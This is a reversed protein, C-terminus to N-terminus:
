SAVRLLEQEAERNWGGNSLKAAVTPFKAGLEALPTLELDKLQPYVIIKGALTAKEVAELGKMAGAMGSVADVSSNTDLSGDVVKGLVIKMDEITSGSTGFMFAKREIYADLDIPHKVPAPIGAFINIIAGPASRRVADAVLAPVPAMLAIYSFEGELPQEKTNLSAYEVGNADAMPKAKKALAELRATDLDTALVRVGKRALCIDRIVHMQGMPGGAGVVVVSDGDRVEGTAPISKYSESADGGTTGTWRTMGYHVRGIGIAAPEGIRKGGLVVNFIGGPKLKDNLAEIADKSAGFYVIDDFDEFALADPGAAREVPIGLAEVAALQADDAVLAVAKAPKGQPAFAKAVGEITAGADAAVLLKGGAKIAQREPNVYSDEVCAWPEVLAVASSGLDDGVPILFREGTGPELVVREDTLFYEQLGGEFNYGFAANSKETALFRYDTQVLCREGVKHHEVQDGVAVIRCVVEHGPVTPKTGPVYSPLADLVEGPLGAVVESKRAHETFQKLLKLDSFCLGVAEVKALIQHPGPQRVEKSTNLMLEGPGVLQIANQSQPITAAM